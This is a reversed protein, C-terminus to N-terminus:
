VIDLLRDHLDIVPWGFNSLMRFIKNKKLGIILKVSDRNSNMVVSKDRYLTRVIKRM